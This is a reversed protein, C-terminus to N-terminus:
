LLNKEKLAAEVEPTLQVWKQAKDKPFTIVFPKEPAREVLHLQRKHVLYTGSLVDPKISVSGTSYEDAEVTAVDANFWFQSQLAPGWVRVKDGVKFETEM